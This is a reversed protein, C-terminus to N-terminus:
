KPSLSNKRAAHPKKRKRRVWLYYGTLSLVAPALGFIAYLVKLPWGGWQGFHLTQLVVTIKGAGTASGMFHTERLNGRVDFVVNGSWEGFLLPEDERHGFFTFAAATDDADMNIGRIRFSPYHQQLAHGMAEISTRLPPSPEYRVPAEDEYFDPQFVYWMMQLASIGIILNFLLAWVGVIRHVSSLLTRRNKRNIRERFLLVKFFHKRYVVIGTLISILFLLAIFGVAWEGSKGGHLSYHLKLMWGFLAARFDGRGDRIGLLAGSYPNFYAMTWVWTGDQKRHDFSMEISGGAHAPLHRFRLGSADPFYQLTHAYISDLPQRQAEPRVQLLKPYLLPDLEPEFLLVVGSLTVVLLLLGTALGALSHIRFLYRTVRKM